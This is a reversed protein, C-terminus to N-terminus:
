ACPDALRESEIQTNSSSAVHIQAVRSAARRRMAAGGQRPSSSRAASPLPLGEAASARQRASPDLRATPAALILSVALHLSRSGRLVRGGGRCTPAGRRPRRLVGCLAEPRGVAGPAPERRCRRGLPSAVKSGPTERRRARDTRGSQLGRVHRVCGQRADGEGHLDSAAGEEGGAASRGARAPVRRAARGRGRGQM